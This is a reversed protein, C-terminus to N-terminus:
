KKRETILIGMIAITIAADALNFAPWFSFDIFDVVAKRVLRDIGNGVVGGLLFAMFMRQAPPIKSSYYIIAGAVLFSVVGLWFSMGQFIGFGAGTNYVLHISVLTGEWAPALWEVLLKVLQDLVVVASAIIWFVKRSVM